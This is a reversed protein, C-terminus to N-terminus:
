HSNDNTAKILKIKKLVNNVEWIRVFSYGVPILYYGYSLWNEKWRTGLIGVIMTPIALMGFKKFNEKLTETSDQTKFFIKKKLDKDDITKEVSFSLRQLNTKLNSSIFGDIVLLIGLLLATFWFAFIQHNNVFKELWPRFKTLAQEILVFFIVYFSLSGYINLRWSEFKDKIEDFSNNIKVKKNKLKFYKRFGLPVLIFFFIWGMQHKPSDKWHYITKQSKKEIDAQEKKEKYEKHKEFQTETTQESPNSIDDFNNEAINWTLELLKDRQKENYTKINTVFFEIKKKFEEGAYKETMLTLLFSCFMRKKEGVSIQIQPMEQIKNEEGEYAIEFCKQCLWSLTEIDKVIFTTTLKEALDFFNKTLEVEKEGYQEELFKDIKREERKSKKYLESKYLETIKKYLEKIQGKAELTESSEGLKELEKKKQKLEKSKM